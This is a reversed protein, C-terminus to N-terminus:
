AGPATICVIQISLTDATPIGTTYVRASDADEYVIQVAASSSVWQGAASILTKGAPCDKGLQSPTGAAVPKGEDLRVLGSVGNAGPTGPPGNTGNTGNAGRLAAVAAASLDTKELSQNKVDKGTLSSDKVQAGTILSGAVAGGSASVLVAGLLLTL